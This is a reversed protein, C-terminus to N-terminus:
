LKPSGSEIWKPFEDMSNGEAWRQQQQIVKHRMRQYMAATVQDREVDRHFRSLLNLATCNWLPRSQLKENLLGRLESHKSGSRFAMEMVTLPFIEKQATSGGMRWNSDDGVIVGYMKDFGAGFRGDVFGDTLAEFVPIAAIPATETYYSHETNAALHRKSKSKFEAVFELAEDRRQNRILNMLFYSDGYIDIHRRHLQQEIFSRCLTWRCEIQKAMESDVFDYENLDMRWLFSAADRCHVGEKMAMGDGNETLFWHDFLRLAERYRGVAINSVMWHWAVHNTKQNSRWFGRQESCCRIAAADHGVEHLIHIKSHFATVIFPDSRLSLHAYKWARDYETNEQLAMSYLGHIYPLTSPREREFDAVVCSISRLTGAVDGMAMYGYHLLLLALVDFSNLDVIRRWASLAKKTQGNLSWKVADLYLLERRQFRHLPAEGRLSECQAILSKIREDHESLNPATSRGRILNSAIYIYGMFFWKDHKLADSLIGDGDGTWDKLDLFKRVSQNYARLSEPNSCTFAVYHEDTVLQLRM